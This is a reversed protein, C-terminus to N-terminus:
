PRRFCRRWVLALGGLGLLLLSSPEPVGYRFHPGAYISGLTGAVEGPFSFGATGLATGRLQIAPANSISGGAAAGAVNFGLTGGSYYAGLHYIQGPDLAVQGISEYRSLGVLSSTPTVVASALLSGSDNWLGVQVSTASPNDIFLNAFCGLETARESSAMEFTWGATTNVFASISNSYSVIAETTGQSFATCATMLAAISFLFRM